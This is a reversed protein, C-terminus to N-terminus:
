KKNEWAEVLGACSGVPLQTNLGNLFRENLLSLVVAHNYASGRILHVINRDVRNFDSESGSWVHSSVRAIKNLDVAFYVLGAKFRQAEKRTVPQTFCYIDWVIKKTRYLDNISWTPHQTLNVWNGKGNKKVQWLLYPKDTELADNAYQAMLEAHPHKM